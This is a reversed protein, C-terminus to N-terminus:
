GQDAHDCAHDQFRRVTWTQSDNVLLRGPRLSAVARGRFSVQTVEADEHSREAIVVYSKDPELVVSEPTRSGPSWGAPPRNVPFRITGARDRETTWSAVEPNPQDQSLGERSTYVTITDVTKDCVKVLVVPTGDSGRTVAAMGIVDATVQNGCGTSLLPLLVVPSLLLRNRRV